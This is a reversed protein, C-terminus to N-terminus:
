RPRGGGGHFGGGGGGGFHSAPMRSMGSSRAQNYRQQVDRHELEQRQFMQSQSERGSPNAYEQVHQQELQTHENRYSEDLSSRGASGTQNREFLADTAPRTQTIGSRAPTLTRGPAVASRFRDGQVASETENRLSSRETYSLPRGGTTALAHEESTFPVARPPPAHIAMVPRTEVGRPPAAARGLGTGLSTRTPVVGPTFGVHTSAVDAPGPHEVHAFPEGGTFNHEPVASVAGPITRNRYNIAGGPTANRVENVNTYNRYNIRERYAFDTHYPPFWPERPGLPFWGVGFAWGGGGVFGVFGPGYFPPYIPAGPCWGWAGGVYAWRGYHFPAWGWPADDVWTWGWPDIWIWHGFSYPAWGVAVGSPFWVPGYDANQAWSGNDDLDALGEMDPSVYKTSASPRDERADRSLTWDDFADPGGAPAIDYTTASDGQITATQQGNVQFSKGGSTVLATGSHVTVKTTNGDPSVDVRYDGAKSATVAANPADIEYDAGDDYRRVRLNVVGQPVRLQLMDEDVHVADLETEPGVRVANAGVQIEAHGVTDVWLRDGTTVTRNLEAFAWTDAEAPRFSVAGDIYSIRGVRSPPNTSTNATTDTGPGLDPSPTESSSSGYYCGALAATVVLIISLRARTIPM